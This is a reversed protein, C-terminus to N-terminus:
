LAQKLAVLEVRFLVEHDRQRPELSLARRGRRSSSSGSRRRCRPIRTRARCARSRRRASRVHVLPWCKRGASPSHWFSRTARPCTPSRYAAARRSRFRSRPIGHARIRRHERSRSAHRSARGRRAAERVRRAAELEVRHRQGYDVSLAHCVFGDRASRRACDDLRAGGSVWCSPM